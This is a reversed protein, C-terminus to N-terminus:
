YSKRFNGYIKLESNFRLSVILNKKIINIFKELIEM